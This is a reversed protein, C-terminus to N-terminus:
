ADWTTKWESRVIYGEKVDKSYVKIGEKDLQLNFGIELPNADYIEVYADIAKEVKKM